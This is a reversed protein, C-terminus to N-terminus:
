TYFYIHVYIHTYLVWKQIRVCICIFVNVWSLGERGCIHIGTHIDLYGGALGTDFLQICTHLIYLITNLLYSFTGATCGVQVIM